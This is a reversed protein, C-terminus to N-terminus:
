EAGESIYTLVRSSESLGIQGGCHQVAAAGAAGSPTSPVNHHALVAVTQAVNEDSLTVFYDAEKALYKLALHSPTKCDLRGMSSIPGTTDVVGGARVSEMLAPAAEPEVVVLTVDAGWVQRAMVACGAALGGVGAQLMVHTPPANQWQEGAEHGMILYGEMVDRPPDAYGEWSGDSLLFWGNQAALQRSHEMGEEYDAGFRIVEAGKARLRNAFSEPVTHALVVVAKAGFLAAGAAMSLGHNGASCCIFTLDTLATTMARQDGLPARAAAMKAIAYTAGLAKFSGLGMRHAELKFHLQAVRWHNALDPMSQLPTAHAVPCAAYLALAAACNQSVDGHAM